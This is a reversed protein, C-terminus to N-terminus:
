RMLRRHMDIGEHAAARYETGVDDPALLEPEHDRVDEITLGDVDFGDTVRISFRAVRGGVASLVHGNLMCQEHALWAVM